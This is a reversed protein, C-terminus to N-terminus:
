FLALQGEDGSTPLVVPVELVEELRNITHRGFAAAIGDEPEHVWFYLEELGHQQWLRLRTLWTEFRSYDTAHLGNGVFRIVVVKTTLDTHLVDRRGAVDTIVTGIKHQYFTDLVAPLLQQAAFWDPHRFEFVLPQDTPWHSLFSTLNEMLQPSFSEHLQVFASGLKGGFHAMAETFRALDEQVGKLKRYHSISQPIKPCFRFEEEVQDAWKKVQEPSPSRYHTTNLEICNFAKAYHHLYDSAPTGKPYLDGVWAKSSWRPLGVYVKLGTPAPSGGLRALTRDNVPPLSFDVGSIDPLKGFKM